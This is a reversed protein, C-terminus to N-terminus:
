KPWFQVYGERPKIIKRYSANKNRDQFCKAIAGCVMDALQLLNNKKSDNIKVKSICPISETADNVKRKLYTQLQQRFERSGSGDIVIISRELLHRANDFALSCVYKYFSEKYSLGKSNIKDKNIVMSYYVFGRGSVAQLFQKRLDDRLKNFKFEFRNNVQMESRLASILDDVANAEDRDNFIVLTLVFVKSSGTKKKLGPDGSEDVFVLM